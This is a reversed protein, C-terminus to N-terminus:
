AYKNLVFEKIGKKKDYQHIIAFDNNSSCNYITDNRIWKTLDQIEDEQSLHIIYDNGHTLINFDLEQTNYTLYNLIVQDYAFFNHKSLLVSLENVVKKQYNILSEIPGITVGCNLIKKNKVIDYTQLYGQKYWWSNTNCDKYFHREESLLLKETDFTTKYVAFPDKQFIVDVDTLLATQYKETNLLEKLLLYFLIPKLNYPTLNAVKYKKIFEEFNVLHINNSLFPIDKETLNTILFLDGIVEKQYSKLFPILYSSPYNLSLAVAINM